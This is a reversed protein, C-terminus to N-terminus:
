HTRRETVAVHRQGRAPELAILLNGAGHTRLQLGGLFLPADADEGDTRETLYRWLVRHSTKGLFVTRGKGDKAGGLRGHKVQVKGTKLEVDGIKLSCLKSARLGTDLLMM